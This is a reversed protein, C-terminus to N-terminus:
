RRAPSPRGDFQPKTFNTLNDGVLGSDTAADLTPASPAAPPTTDITLSLAGSVSSANGAADTALATINFVGDPALPTTITIQYVGGTAVGSGVAVGGSYITVTSGPEATGDFRPRTFNTLNDGVLGSDTAPDLVPVSPVAPPTTDYTFTVTPGAETTGSADTGRAHVTYSGDAPFNAAAFALSWATTGAATLYYESPQDFAAGDWYSGDSLREVSVQVQTISGGPDSSTGAISPTWDAANYFAGSQPYSITSIPAVNQTSQQPASWPGNVYSAPIAM